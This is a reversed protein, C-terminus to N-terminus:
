YAPGLCENNVWILEVHIQFLFLRTSIMENWKLIKNWVLIPMVSTCWINLKGVSAPCFVRIPFNRLNAIRPSRKKLRFDEDHNIHQIPQLLGLPSHTKDVLERVFPVSLKPSTLFRFNKRMKHRLLSFYNAVFHWSFTRDVSCINSKGM